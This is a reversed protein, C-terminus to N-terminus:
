HGGEGYGVFGPPSGILKSTEHREMFETMDFRLLRHEDNLVYEALAKALETKGVGTPGM